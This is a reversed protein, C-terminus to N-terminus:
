LTESAEGIKQLEEESVEKGKIKANKLIFDITKEELIQARLHNVASSHKKYYEIVMNEQGPYNKAEQLVADTIEKQAVQINKKRGLDALILGLRVRREAIKKYEKQWKKLNEETPESTGAEQSLQQCINDLELKVMGEPVDFTYITALKNLVDQKAQSRTMKEHSESLLKANAAEMDKIGEFGHKKALDDDLNAPMREMVEHIIVDFIVEKGAISKEHYDKPFSLNLVVKKGKEYGVLGEEFGPIFQNAGLELEYDKGQGGKLPEGGIKGDFDIKLIDGSKTKRKAKIPTNVGAAKARLENLHALKKPDKKVSYQTIEFSKLDLDKVEPLLEVHMTYSFNEGKKYKEKPHFHPRVAPRLKHDLIVKQATENLLDDIVESVIENGQRQEIVSVPVKGPRFGSIKATKARSELGKQIKSSIEAHPITVLFEKSLGKSHVEKVEIKVSM